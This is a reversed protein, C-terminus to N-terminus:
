HGAPGAGPPRQGASPATAPRYNTVQLFQGPKFEDVHDYFYEDDNKHIKKFEMEQQSFMDRCRQYRRELQAGVRALTAELDFLAEQGLAAGSVALLLGCIGALLLRHQLPSVM